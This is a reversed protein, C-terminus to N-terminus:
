RRMGAQNAPLRPKVALAGLALPAPMFAEILRKKPM